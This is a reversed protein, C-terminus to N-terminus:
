QVAFAQRLSDIDVVILDAKLLCVIFDFIAQGDGPELDLGGIIGLIASAEVSLPGNEEVFASLAECFAEITGGEWIFDGLTFGTEILDEIGLFAGASLEEELTVFCEDCADVPTGGDEGGVNFDNNNICVM